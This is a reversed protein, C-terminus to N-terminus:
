CNRTNLNGHYVGGKNIRKSVKAVINKGYDENHKNMKQKSPNRGISTKHFIPEHAVHDKFKRAM